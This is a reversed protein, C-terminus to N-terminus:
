NTSPSDDVSIDWGTQRSIFSRIHISVQFSDSCIIIMNACFLWIMTVMPNLAFYFFSHPSSSFLIKQSSGVITKLVKTLKIYVYYKYYIKRNNVILCKMSNIFSFIAASPAQSPRNDFHGGQRTIFSIYISTNHKM